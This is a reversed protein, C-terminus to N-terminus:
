SSALPSPSPFPTKLFHRAAAAQQIRRRPEDRFHRGLRVIAQQHQTLSLVGKVATRVADTWHALWRWLSLPRETDDFWDRVQPLVQAAVGQVLLAGILKGLLYTQALDPNQAPLNGLTLIGKLRKFVLEVQWRFRYLRLITPASWVTRPLSSVVILFGAAELSLTRPTRGKKRAQEWLRRRNADAGEQPLRCAILRLPFVGDPTQVQVATEAPQDAPVTPLWALLDLPTGDPRTLPLNHTNVRVIIQGGHALLVGLGRRQCYGRDALTILDPPHSHRALTEGGQADTLEVGTIAAQALDCELHVRWDTGNSGPKSIVSADLL